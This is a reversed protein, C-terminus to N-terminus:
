KDLTKEYNKNRAHRKQQARTGPVNASSKGVQIIERTQNKERVTQDCFTYRRLLLKERPHLILFSVPPVAPSPTPYFSRNLVFVVVIVVFIYYCKVLLPVFGWFRSLFPSSLKRRRCRGHEGDFRSWILNQLTKKKRSHMDLSRSHDFTPHSWTDRKPISAHPYVAGDRSLKPLVGM